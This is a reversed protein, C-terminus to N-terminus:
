SIYAKRQATGKVLKYQYGKRPIGGPFRYIAYKSVYFVYQRLTVFKLSVYSETGIDPLTNLVAAPTYVSGCPMIASREM